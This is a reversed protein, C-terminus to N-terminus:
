SGLRALEENLVGVYPLNRYRGEYDLGYGVVFEDAIPFGVFDAALGGERDKEKELLVVRWVRTAGAELLIRGVERLTLGTDLIDDLVLVERGRVDPLNGGDVTVVGSSVTGGGYSSARVGCVQLRMPLRRLLDAAFVMAGDMLVVAVRDRVLEGSFVEMMELAMEDLRRSIEEEGLLIRDLDGKM